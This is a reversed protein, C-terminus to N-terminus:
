VGWVSEYNKFNIKIENDKVKAETYLGTDLNWTKLIDEWNSELNDLNDLNKPIMMDIMLKTLEVSRDLFKKISKGGSIHEIAPNYNFKDDLITDPYEEFTSGSSDALFYELYNEISSSESKVDYTKDIATSLVKALDPIYGEIRHTLIMNHGKDLGTGKWLETLIYYDQAQEVLNHAAFSGNVIFSPGPVDVKLILHEQYKGVLSNVFPHYVLDTAMHSLFGKCLYEIHNKLESTPMTDRIEYLNKIFLGGNKYHMYDSLSRYNNFWSVHEGIQSAVTPMYFIDPGTAGLFASAYKDKKSLSDLKANIVKLQQKTNELLGKRYENLYDNNEESLEVIMQEAGAKRIKLLKKEFTYDGDIDISNKDHNKLYERMVYFHALTGAM